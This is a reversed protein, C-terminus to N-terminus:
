NQHLTVTSFTFGYTQEALRGIDVPHVGTDHLEHSGSLVGDPAPPLLDVVAQVAGRLPDLLTVDPLRATMTPLVCTYDTCALVAHRAGAEALRTGVDTLLDDVEPADVIGEEAYRLLRETAISVWTRDPYRRPIVGSTVTGQTGLLAIPRVSADPLVRGIAEVMDVCPLRRDVLDPAVVSATNCAIVWADVGQRVFFDEAERVYGAVDALPQPGYPRRSSDALYCISVNPIAGILERGFPLGGIGADFVGVRLGAECQASGLASAPTM